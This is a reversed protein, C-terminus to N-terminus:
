TLSLLDAANFPIRAESSSAQLKRVLDPDQILAGPTM